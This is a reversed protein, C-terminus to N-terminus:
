RGAPEATQPAPEETRYAPRGILFCGVVAAAAACGTMIWLLASPNATAIAPTVVAFGACLFRSVSYTFGQVTARANVPFGEQTWVKYLAEGAFPYSLNFLVLLVIMAGLVGGGTLAGVAMAVIQLVAGVYFLPRRLRTDAIRVFVLGIVLSLLSTPLALGTVLTQSAGAVTSLLFAKFQGLTNAMLNWFIYFLGTLAMTGVLRPSTFLARLPMAPEPEYSSGAGMADEELRRLTPSFVRAAWTVLALVALHAFLIRIGTLGLGSVVFGLATVAVIGVSWMVQTFAVLRGRAEDPAMESVVAISTPLDAGAALGGIVVGAIMLSPSQAFLILSVGIAYVLIDINFVRRRGFVDAIRGGFLAGVAISFTLAGSILGLTWPDFGLSDRWTTLSLGVTVLIGADLYSAMGAVAALRWLRRDIPSATTSSRPM